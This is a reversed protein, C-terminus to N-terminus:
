RNARSATYATTLAAYQRLTRWIKLKSESRKRDYRLVLPVEGFRAGNERARLMLELGATFGSQQPFGGGSEGDELIARIVEARYARYGSTYDRVNEEPFLTGFVWRAGHSLLRRNWPVGVEEGGPQFRSAIAVDCGNAVANALSPILNPDHTGDADMTVVISPGTCAEFGSRLAQGYGRNREHRVVRVPSEIGAQAAINGSGDSSGDDVVVVEYSLGAGELTRHIDRLLDALASSENYTPLVIGVTAQPRLNSSSM